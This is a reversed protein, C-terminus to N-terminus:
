LPATRTPPPSIILEAEFAKLHNIWRNNNMGGANRSEEFIWPPHYNGLTQMRRCHLWPQEDTTKTRLRSDSKLEVQLEAGIRELDVSPKTWSPEDSINGLVQCIAYGNRSSCRSSTSGCSQHIRLFTSSQRQHLLLKGGWYRTESNNRLM